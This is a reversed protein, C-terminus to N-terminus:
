GSGLADWYILDSFTPLWETFEPLGPPNNSRTWNLCLRPSTKPTVKTFLRRQALLRM